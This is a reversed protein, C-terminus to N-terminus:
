KADEPRPLRVGTLKWGALGDRELVLAIREDGSEKEHFHVVFKDVGEYGRKVKVDPARVGREGGEKEGEEGPRRGETLAAIGQPTVAADVFPSALKGAILGGLAALPNGEDAAIRRSVTSRLEQKVSERLAPFDVLENLARTDGAEAAAQLKRMALYPTAYMWAAALLVVLLAFPALSRKKAM